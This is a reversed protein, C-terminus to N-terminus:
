IICSVSSDLTLAGEYYKKASDKNLLHYLAGCNNQVMAIKSQFSFNKQLLASSFDPDNLLLLLRGNHMVYVWRWLRWKRNKQFKDIRKIIRRRMSNLVWFGIFLMILILNIKGETIDNVRETELKRTKGTYFGNLCDNPSIPMCLSFHNSTQVPALQSDTGWIVM